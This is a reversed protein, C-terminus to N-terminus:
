QNLLGYAVLVIWSAAFGFIIGTFKEVIFLELKEM